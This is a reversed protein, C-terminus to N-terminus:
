AAMLFLEEDERNRIEQQWLELLAAVAQADRKLAVWDVGQVRPTQKRAEMKSAFPKVIKAAKAKVEQPVDKSTLTGYYDALVADWLMDLNNSASKKPKKRYVPYGSGGATLEDLTEVSISGIATTASVGTVAVNADGSVSVSGVAGTASVGAAAVNADGTVSVSGIAGTAAVGTASVSATGTVAVSGIAGTASVGTVAVVVDVSGGSDAQTPDRLIIDQPTVAGSRLFIDTM